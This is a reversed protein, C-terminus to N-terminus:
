GIVYKKRIIFCGLMLIGSIVLIFVSPEPVGPIQTTRFVINDLVCSLGSGIISFTSIDNLFDYEMLSHTGFTPRIIGNLPGFAQFRLYQDKGFITFNTSPTMEGVVDISLLNFTNDNMTFVVESGDFTVPGHYESFDLVGSNVPYFLPIWDSIREIIMGDEYYPGSGIYSNNFTIIEVVPVPESPIEPPSIPGGPFPGPFKPPGGIPMVGAYTYIVAWFFLIILSYRM